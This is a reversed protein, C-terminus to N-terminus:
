TLNIKINKKKDEEICKKTSTCSGFRPIRIVNKKTKVRQMKRCDINM